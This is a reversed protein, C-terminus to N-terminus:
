IIIISIKFSPQKVLKELMTAICILKIDQHKRKNELTKYFIANNMLKFNRKSFRM